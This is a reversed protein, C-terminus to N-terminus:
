RAHGRPEGVRGDVNLSGDDRDPRKGLLRRRLEDDLHRLRAPNRLFLIWALWLWIGLYWCVYLPICVVKLWISELVWTSELHSAIFLSGLVLILVLLATVSVTATAELPAYQLREYRKAWFMPVAISEWSLLPTQHHFLGNIRAEFVSLSVEMAMTVYHLHIYVMVLTALVAPLASLIERHNLQFAVVFGAALAATVLSICAYYLAYQTRILSILADYEHLLVDLRPDRSEHAKLPEDDFTASVV